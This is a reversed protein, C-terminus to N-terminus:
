LVSMTSPSFTVKAQPVLVIGAIKVPRFQFGSMALKPRCLHRFQCRLQVGADRSQIFRSPLFLSLSSVFLLFHSLHLSFVPTGECQRPPVHTNLIPDNSLYLNIQM